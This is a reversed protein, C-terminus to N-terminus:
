HPTTRASDPGSISRDVGGPVGWTRSRRKAPNGRACAHKVFWASSSGRALLSLWPSLLARAPSLRRDGEGRFRPTRAYSGWLKRVSARVKRVRQTVERQYSGIDQPSLFRDSGRSPPPWHAPGAPSVISVRCLACPCPFRKLAVRALESRAPPTLVHVAMPWAVAWSLLKTPLAPRTPAM